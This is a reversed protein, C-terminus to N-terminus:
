KDLMRYIVAGLMYGTALSLAGEIMGKLYVKTVAYSGDENQKILHTCDVRKNLLSKIKNM